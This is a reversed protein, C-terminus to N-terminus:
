QQKAAERQRERERETERETERERDRERPRERETERETARADDCLWTYGRRFGIQRRREFHPILIRLIGYLFPM